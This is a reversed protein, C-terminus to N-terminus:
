IHGGWVENPGTFDYQAASANKPASITVGKLAAPSLYTRARRGM